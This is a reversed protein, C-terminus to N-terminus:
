KKFGVKKLFDQFAKLLLNVMEETDWGGRDPYSPHYTDILLIDLSPSYHCFDNVKHFDTVDPFICEKVLNIMKGKVDKENETSGCCLIINPKDIERLQKKLFEADRKGSEWIEKWISSGGGSLKKINCFVFPYYRFVEKVKERLQGDTYHPLFDKTTLHLGEVWGATVKFIAMNPSTEHMNFDRYDEGAEKNPEKYIIALRRSNELYLKVAKNIAEEESLDKYEPNEHIISAIMLGDYTLRNRLEEPYSNNLKDLNENEREFFKDM